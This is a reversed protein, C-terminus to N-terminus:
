NSTGKGDLVGRPTTVSIHCAGYDDRRYHRDGLFSCLGSGVEVVNYAEDLSVRLFSPLQIRLYARGTPEGRREGKAHVYDVMSILLGNRLFRTRLHALAYTRVNNTSVQFGHENLLAIARGPDMSAKSVNRLLSDKSKAWHRAMMQAVKPCRKTRDASAAAVHGYNFDEALIKRRAALAGYPVPNLVIHGDDDELKLIDVKPPVYGPSTAVEFCAFSNRFANDTPLIAM